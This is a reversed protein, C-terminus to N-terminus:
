NTNSQPPPPPPTSEPPPSEAALKTLFYCVGKKNLAGYDTILDLKLELVVNEKWENTKLFIQVGGLMKDLLLGKTCHGKLPRENQIARLYKCVLVVHVTSIAEGLKEPPGAGGKGKLPARQFSAEFSEDHSEGEDDDDNGGSSSSGLLITREKNFMMDPSGRLCWIGLYDTNCNLINLITPFRSTATYHVGYENKICHYLRLTWDNEEWNNCTTGPQVCPSEATNGSHLVKLISDIKSKLVADDAYNTYKAELYTLLRKNGLMYPALSDHNSHSSCTSPELLDKRTCNAFCEILQSFCVSSATAYVEHTYIYVFKEQFVRRFCGNPAWEIPAKVTRGQPNKKTKEGGVGAEMARTMDKTITAKMDEMQDFDSLKIKNQLSDEALDVSTRYFCSVGFYFFQATIKRKVTSM